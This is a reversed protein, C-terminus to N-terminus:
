NASVGTDIEIGTYVLTVLHSTIVDNGAANHIGQATRRDEKGREKYHPHTVEKTPNQTSGRSM